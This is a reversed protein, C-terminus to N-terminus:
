SCINGIYYQFCQSSIICQCCWWIPQCIDAHWPM